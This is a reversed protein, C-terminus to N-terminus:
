NKIPLNLRLSPESAHTLEASTKKKSPRPFYLYGAIPEKTPGDAHARAKIAAKITHPDRDSPPDPDNRRPNNDVSVGEYTGAATQRRGTTPDRGTAVYVGTETTVNPGRSPVRTQKEVWSSYVDEPHRALIHEGAINLAFAYPDVDVTQGAEPYIAVEVVIFRRAIDANFIKRVEDPSIATAAYVAHGVSQKAAYSSPDSHPPVGACLIAPALLFTLARRVGTVEATYRKHPGSPENKASKASSPEFAFNKVSM